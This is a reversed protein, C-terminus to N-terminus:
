KMENRNIEMGNIRLGPGFTTTIIEVLREVPVLRPRCVTAPMQSAMIM